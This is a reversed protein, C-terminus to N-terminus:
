KSSLRRKYRKLVSALNEKGKPFAVDGAATGTRGKRSSIAVEVDRVIELLTAATTFKGSGTTRPLVPDSRRPYGNNNGNGGGAPLELCFCPARPSRPRTFAPDIIGQLRNLVYTYKGWLEPRSEVLSLDLIRHICWVGFSIILDVGWVCGEGCNTISMMAVEGVQSARNEVEYLFKERLAVRSIIEEDIGDNQSFLCECGELKVLKAICSRFSRLLKVYPPSDLASPSSSSSSLPSNDAVGFQERANFGVATKTWSSAIQEHAGPPRGISNGYLRSSFVSSDQQSNHLGSIDPLSYYKKTDPSHSSRDAFEPSYLSSWQSRLAANRAVPVNHFGPPTLNRQVGGIPKQSPSSRGSYSNVSNSLASPTPPSDPQVTQLGYGKEKALQGLYSRLEYGHITAPQQDYGGSSSPVHVSFYRREGFDVVNFGSNPGYADVRQTHRSPLSQNQQNFYNLYTSPQFSDSATDSSRTPQQKNLNETKMSSSSSVSSASDIGILVDLKKAKAEDTVEGHYGFFQGWFDDLISTLQRRAARGLGATRSLSGAGGAVDDIKCGLSSKLSGPGESARESVDRGTKESDDKVTQVALIKEAMMKAEGTLLADADASRVVTTESSVTQDLDANSSALEFKDDEAVTTVSLDNGSDLLTEPFNVVPVPAAMTEQHEVVSKEFQLAADTVVEVPKELHFPTKSMDTEDGDLSLDPREDWSQGHTDVGVRASKLPTIVLLLMLFISALASTLLIFYPVPFVSGPNWSLSSVWDSSGFIMEMVFVIKLGLMGMFSVFALVEVVPSVQCSGMIPKCSAVRFLPVVSSPLFIALVVQTFVLLQFVAEAGSNWICCLALVIAFIRIAAHHLWGPIDMDLSFLAQTFARRGQCWSLSVMHESSFIFVLLAFAGVSNRYVALQDLLSLVDQLGLPVLGSNYFFNAALNMVVCNALYIGSFICLIACFHYQCLASKSVYTPGQAQQVISSHLYFNHPMISAGLIAMLAFANEGTLKDLMGGMTLSSEPQIVLVGCFYIILVFSTLCMSMLKAKPNGLLNALFPYMAADLGMLFICNFLDLGLFANLGCATGLVMTLDLVIMSIEVPIGLLICTVNDYEERCIQALDKSTAIAIHASLYQCLMAICNMILVFLAMDYGLRAGGEVSAAWKGPDVYSVAVYLMPGAAALVQ